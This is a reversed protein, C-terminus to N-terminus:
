LLLARSMNSIFQFCVKEANVKDLKKRLDHLAQEAIDHDQIHKIQDEAYKAKIASLTEHSFRDREGEQEVMREELTKIQRRADELQFNAQKFAKEATIARNELVRLQAQTEALDSQLTSTSLSRERIREQEKRQFKSECSLLEQELHAIREEQVKMLSM